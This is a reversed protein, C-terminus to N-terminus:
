SLMFGSRAGESGLFRVWDAGHLIGAMFVRGIRSEYAPGYASEAEKLASLEHKETASSDPKRLIVVRQKGEGSIPAGGVHVDRASEGRATKVELLPSVLSVRPASRENREMM